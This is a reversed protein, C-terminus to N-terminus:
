NESRIREEFRSGGGVFQHDFRARNIEDLTPWSGGKKRSLNTARHFSGRGKTADHARVSADDSIEM